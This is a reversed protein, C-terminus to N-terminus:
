AKAGHRAEICGGHRHQETAATVPQRGARRDVLRDLRQHRAHDRQQFLRHAGPRRHPNLMASREVAKPSSFTLLGAPGVLWSMTARTRRPVPILFIPCAPVSSGIAVPTSIKHTPAAVRSLSYTMADRFTYRART